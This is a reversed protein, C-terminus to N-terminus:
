ITGDNEDEMMAYEAAADAHILATDYVPLSSDKQKVLLGIETCGLIVGQAGQQKLGTIVNSFYSRSSDKIEGIILEQNIIKHIRDIDEKPPIQVDIGRSILINKYFDK